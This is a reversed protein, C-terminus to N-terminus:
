KKGNKIRKAFAVMVSLLVSLAFFGGLVYLPICTTNWTIQAAETIKITLLVFFLTILFQNMNFVVKRNKGKNNKEEIQAM